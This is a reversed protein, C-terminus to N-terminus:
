VFAAVKVGEWERRGHAALAAKSADVLDRKFASDFTYGGGAPVGERLAGVRLPRLAADVRSRDALAHHSEFLISGDHGAASLILGGGPHVKSFQSVDYVEGHVVTWADEPTRHRRVESWDLVAEREGSEM